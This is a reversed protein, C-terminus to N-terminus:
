NGDVDMKYSFILSNLVFRSLLVDFKVLYLLRVSSYSRKINDM